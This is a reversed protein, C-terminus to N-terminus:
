NKALSTKKSKDKKPIIEQPASMHNRYLRNYTAGRLFDFIHTFDKSIQEMIPKIWPNLKCRFVQKPGVLDLGGIEPPVVTLRNCQIHLENLRQLDGIEPPLSLLDNDRLVLIELNILKGIDSPITEFNNDGLYLIRLPLLLSDSNLKQVKKNSLDCTKGKDHRLDELYRRIKSM